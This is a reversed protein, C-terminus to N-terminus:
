QGLKVGELHKRPAKISTNKLSIDSFRGADVTETTKNQLDSTNPKFDLYDNSLFMITRQLKEDNETIDQVFELAKLSINVFYQSGLERDGKIM